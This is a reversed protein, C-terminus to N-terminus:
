YTNYLCLKLSCHISIFFRKTNDKNINCKGKQMIISREIITLRMSFFHNELFPYLKKTCKQVIPYCNSLNYLYALCDVPIILTIPIKLESFTYLNVYSYLLTFLMFSMLFRICYFDLKIANLWSIFFLACHNCNCRKM